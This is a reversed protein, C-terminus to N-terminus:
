AFGSELHATDNLRSLYQRSGSTEIVTISTNGITIRRYISNSVNLVHAVLVRIVADHTVMVVTGGASGETIDRFAGVVRATLQPYSEGGPIRLESPDYRSQEWLGPWGRSIEASNLGQWDGLNLEIIDRRTEPEINHPGALITATTYARRLPSTYVMDLHESSLRSALHSAQHLGTSDLDEDSWGPYHRTVNSEVQGHRILMLRKAM